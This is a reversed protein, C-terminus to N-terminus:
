VMYKDKNIHAMYYEDVFLYKLLQEHIFLNFRSVIKSLWFGSLPRSASERHIETLRAM